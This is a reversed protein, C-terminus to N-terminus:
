GRGVFPMKTATITLFQVIADFPLAAMYLVADAVHQADFTPEAATSGDAQLTGRNIRQTMDTAANGLTEYTIAQSVPKRVASWCPSDHKMPRQLYVSAHLLGM